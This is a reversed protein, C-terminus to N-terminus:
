QLEASGEIEVLLDSRCIDAQVYSAKVHPGIRHELIARVQPFHAPDRIYVIYHLDTMNFKTATKRDAEDLVAAINEISEETQASVDGAHLTQHGVISATGSLFLMSNGAVSAMSARSFLPSRPGYEAPYDYASIQRPNEIALTPTRGALFAVMLPGGTTGLACAAPVNGAIHQDNGIFAQQRGLNFQRYRELDHSIGNIDAIYNWFRLVYPFNQAKLMAFIKEYATKSAAQLPTSGPDGSFESENLTIVGFLINDNFRFHLQDSQGAQSQDTSQFFEYLASQGGLGPMAVHAFTSAADFDSIDTLTQQSFYLAGLLTDTAHNDVPSSILANSYFVKLM